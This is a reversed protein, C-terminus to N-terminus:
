RSIILLMIERNEIAAELEPLGSEEGEGLMEVEIDFENKFHNSFSSISIYYTALRADNQEDHSEGHYTRLIESRQHPTDTFDSCEQKRRDSSVSQIFQNM